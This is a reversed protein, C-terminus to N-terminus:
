AQQMAEDFCVQPQHSLMRTQKMYTSLLYLGPTKISTMLWIRMTVHIVSATSDKSEEQLMFLKTTRAEWANTDAGWTAPLNLQFEALVIVSSYSHRHELSAM